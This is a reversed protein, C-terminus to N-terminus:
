KLVEKLKLDVEKWRKKLEEMSEVPHADSYAAEFMREFLVALQHSGLKGKEILKRFVPHTTNFVLVFPEREFFIMPYEEGLDAPKAGKIKVTKTEQEKKEVKPIETIAEDTAPGIEIETEPPTPLIEGQIANDEFPGIEIESEKEEYPTEPPTPEYPIEPLKAEEEPINTPEFDKPLVTEEEKPFEIQLKEMVHNEKVKKFWYKKFEKMLRKIFDVEMKEFSKQPRLKALEKKLTKKFYRYKENNVFGERDTKIDLFEQDVYATLGTYDEEKVLIGKQCIFLTGDMEEKTYLRIEGYKTKKPEQVTFDGRINSYLDVHQFKIACEKELLPISFTKKIWEEIEKLDKLELGNFELYVGHGIEDKDEEILPGEWGKKDFTWTYVKGDKYSIIMGRESAAILSMRGIGFFGRSGKRRKHASAIKGYIEKFSNPDIGAGSDTYRLKKKIDDYDIWIEVKGIRADLSNTILERIGAKIPDSYMRRAVLEILRNMDVKWEEKM